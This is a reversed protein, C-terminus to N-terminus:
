NNDGRKNLIYDQWESAVVEWSYDYTKCGKIYRNWTELNTLMTICADVFKDKYEKTYPNGPVKVGCDDPVTEHLAAMDSTVIPTLATIANLVSMCCTEPFTNPYIFLSSEALHEALVPQKVAGFYRVGLKEMNKAKTYLWSFQSDDYNAGYLKMSSFIYLEANPVGAKIVPWIDLLIDLGRFPTSTYICKGPTKALPFQFLKNDVGNKIAIIKDQQIALKEIIDNRHWDSVCVIKTILGLNETIRAWAPSDFTDHSWLVMEKAIGNLSATCAANRLVVLKDINLSKLMDNSMTAINHYVVNDYIGPADCNAVVHVNYGLKQICSSLNIIATETGGLPKTKISSGDFETGCPDYFCITQKSNDMGLSQSQSVVVDNRGSKELKAASIKRVVDESPYFKKAKYDYHDCLIDPHAYIKYGIERAQHFFYHDEGVPCKLNNNNKDTYVWNELFFPIHRKELEDFVKLNILCCGLGSGSVEFLGDTPFNFYPGSGIEKFIVPQTPDTKTWYIGTIIDKGSSLMQTVCDTPIFVDDDVFLISDFGMRRAINVAETRAEAWPKGEVFILKWVLGVPLSAKVEDMHRMWLTSAYGRTIVGIAM